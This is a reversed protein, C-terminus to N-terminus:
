LDDMAADQAQNSNIKDYYLLMVCGTLYSDGEAITLAIYGLDTTYATFWEYEQEHIAYMKSFNDDRVDDKFKESCESPSGYKQTLKDKLGEYDSHISSWTNSAPTKVGVCSVIDQNSLTTVYIYCNNYGAFSGSFLAANSDSGEYKYGAKNMSETFSKLSGDIPIGKFTMHNQAYISITMFLCITLVLLKKM